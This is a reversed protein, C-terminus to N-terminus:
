PFSDSIFLTYLSKVKARVSRSSVPHATASAGDGTETASSRVPVTFSGSPSVSVSVGASVGESAAVVKVQFLEFFDTAATDPPTTVAFFAPVAVMVTVVAFLFFALTLIRTYSGVRGVPTLSSRDPVTFSGSPSFSVRLAVSDGSM